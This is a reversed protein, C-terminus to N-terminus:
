LKFLDVMAIRELVLDGRKEFPCASMEEQTLGYRLLKETSCELLTSDEQLHFLELTKSADEKHLDKGSYGFEPLNVLLFAVQSDKKKKIGMLKIADKIQKLGSSYLLTEMELSSTARKKRKWARIAHDLSSLLHPKGCIVEADFVQIFIKKREELKRIDKLFDLPSDVKGRGAFILTNIM